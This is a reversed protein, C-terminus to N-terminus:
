EGDPDQNEEGVDGYVDDFKDRHLKVNPHAALQERPPLTEFEPDEPDMKQGAVVERSSGVARLTRKGPPNAEPKDQDEHITEGQTALMADIVSLIIRQDRKSIETSTRVVDVLPTSTDQSQHDIGMSDLVARTVRAESLSLVRSLMRITEAKITIIPDDKIRGFNTHSMSYGADAARKSLARLSWDNRDMVEQILKGLPHLENM